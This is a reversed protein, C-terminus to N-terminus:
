GRRKIERNSARLKEAINGERKEEVRGGNAGGKLESGKSQKGTIDRGVAPHWQTSPPFFHLVSALSPSSLLTTHTYIPIFSAHPHTDLFCVVHRHTSRMYFVGNQHFVSPLEHAVVRLLSMCLLAQSDVLPTGNCDWLPGRVTCVCLGYDFEVTKYHLRM